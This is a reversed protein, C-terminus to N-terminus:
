SKEDPKTNPKATKEWTKWEDETIEISKGGGGRGSLKNDARKGTTRHSNISFFTRHDGKKAAEDHTEDKEGIGFYPILRYQSM